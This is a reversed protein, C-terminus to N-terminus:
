TAKENKAGAPWPMQFIVFRPAAELAVGLAGTHAAAPLPMGLMGMLANAISGAFESFMKAPVSM